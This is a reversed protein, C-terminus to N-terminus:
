KLEPWQKLITVEPRGTVQRVWAIIDAKDDGRALAEQIGLTLQVGVPVDPADAGMAKASDMYDRATQLYRTVAGTYRGADRYLRGQRREALASNYASQARRFASQKTNLKAPTMAGPKPQGAGGGGGSRAGGGRRGGGGGARAPRNARDVAIATRTAQNQRSAAANEELRVQQAADEATMGQAVKRAVRADFSAKDTLQWPQKLAGQPGYAAPGFTGTMYQKFRDAGAQEPTLAAAPLAPLALLGVGPIEIVDAQGPAAPRFGKSLYNLMTDAVDLESPPAKPKLSEAFKAEDLDANRKQNEIQARRWADLAQAEQMAQMLRAQRDKEQQRQQALQQALNFQTWADQAEQQKVQQQGRLFGALGQLAAMPIAM